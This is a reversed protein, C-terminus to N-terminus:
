YRSQMQLRKFILLKAEEGPHPRHCRSQEDKLTIKGRFGEREHAYWNTILGMFNPNGSYPDYLYGLPPVNFASAHSAILKWQPNLSLGYGLYVSDNGAL